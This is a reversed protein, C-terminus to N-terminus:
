ESLAFAIINTGTAVAVYQKGGAMYTMPSARWSDNTPFSWLTTGDGANVAAFGGATEGHFVINGATSLVGSYNAENSGTLPKEWAVAGTHINLARLFRKGPDKFDPNPGYVRGTKRYFGCDEAAM